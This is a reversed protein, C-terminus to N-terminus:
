AGKQSEHKETKEIHDWGAASKDQRDKQVGFKGGFGQSYDKQSEHKDVKEVHDWGAASKDQRDTQIGFKGGFGQSYDKQSEHKDVKEIHDWGAASKDQRDKQVGFKGGFGQSHDVQSSHKEVNMIFEHSQASKDMRDKEVGFKGGYGYSAKPGSNLEAQKLQADANVTEERFQKMDIAGIERKSGYRQEEETMNNVYDADTDWEDDTNNNANDVVQFGAAAKWM